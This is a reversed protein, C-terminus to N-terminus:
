HHANHSTKDFTEGASIAVALRNEKPALPCTAYPTVACPPNYARNFDLVLTGDQVAGTELFRGGPYTNTKATADSFVFFLGKNPDGGLATLSVETGNVKFQVIGPSVQQTVDGLANPIAVTKKGDSPVWTGTIRYNMDLPFFAMGKFGHAAASDRDKVRIGVRDGRVIVHFILSGMEVTTTHTATDPDLKAEGFTKGDITAGADPRMKLTVNKGGLVFEGARASGKPFVIANGSDSGFSNSGPKLWFLGVLCLWNEKLDDTQEAKWKEFSQVYAADPSDSAAHRALAAISFLLLLASILYTRRM